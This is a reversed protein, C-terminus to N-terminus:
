LWKLYGGKLDFIKKFGLGDLKEGAKHSRNGSRCYLYIPQEKDLKQVANLFGTSNFFDVNVANEIHGGKFEAPTRVDLLQVKKTSIAQKFTTTDLLTVSSKQQTKDKFLFSFLSM